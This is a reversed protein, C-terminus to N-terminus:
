QWHDVITRALAAMLILAANDPTWSQDKNDYTFESILIPGGRAYVVAVDNRVDDDAGTKNAVVLGKGPAALNQLYRPIADQDTQNELMNMAVDCLKRDQASPNVPEGPAKLDCEVFRQMLRAMERATTKGLGFQKQDTPVPPVPPLFVKKYLWTNKLGLWMLRRDINKLGLRDIALNAATNDSVVIMMTLADKLTLRQPTDFFRLVGSGEVQNSKRLTVAEEFNAQGSRIQELAEFLVALKIVSETPVPTDADIAATRGSRLDVAFLAVKGQHAAALARLQAALTVDEAGLAPDACLLAALVLGLGRLGFTV